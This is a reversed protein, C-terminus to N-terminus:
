SSRKQLTLFIHRLALLPHHWLLRPGAYRMVQRIQERMGPKYCHISCDSCAPKREGHPCHALRMLAYDLLSQCSTCLQANTAHHEHCYIDLLKTITKKEQLSHSGSNYNNRANKRSGIMM